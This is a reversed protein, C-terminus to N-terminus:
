ESPETEEINPAIQVSGGVVEGRIRFTSAIGDGDLDGNAVGMFTTPTAGYSYMYYQPMSMSFQLCCFGRDTACDVNWDAVSSQYKKGSVMALTSPVARSASPCLRHAVAGGPGSREKEWAAAADKAIEALANRAEAQKANNVYKRVGYIALVALVPIVLLFAALVIVLAIVWTPM